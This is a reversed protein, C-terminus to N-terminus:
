YCFTKKFQPTGFRRKPRGEKETHEFHDHAFRRKPILRVVMRAAAERDVTVEATVLETLQAVLGDAQARQLGHVIAGRGCEELGRLVAELMTRRGSPWMRRFIDQPIARRSIDYIRAQVHEDFIMDIPLGEFGAPIAVYVSHVAEDVQVASDGDGCTQDM